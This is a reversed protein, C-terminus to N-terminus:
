LSFRPKEGLSLCYMICLPFFSLFSSKRMLFSLLWLVITSYKTVALFLLLWRCGTSFIRSFSLKFFFVYWIFIFVSIKRWCVQAVFHVLPFIKLGSLFLVLHITCPDVCLLFSGQIWCTNWYIHFITFLNEKEWLKNLLCIM